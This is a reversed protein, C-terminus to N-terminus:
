KTPNDWLNEFHYFRMTNLIVLLPSGLLSGPTKLILTLTAAEGPSNEDSNKKRFTLYGYRWSAPLVAYLHLCFQRHRSGMTTPIFAMYNYLMWHYYHLIRKRWYNNDIWKPRQQRTPIDQHQEMRGVRWFGGVGMRGTRWMRRGIIYRKARGRKGEM